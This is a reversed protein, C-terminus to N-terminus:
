TSQKNYADKYLCGRAIHYLDNYKDALSINPVYFKLPLYLSYM